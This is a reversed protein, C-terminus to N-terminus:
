HNRRSWLRGKAASRALRSAELSVSVRTMVVSVGSIALRDKAAVLQKGDL